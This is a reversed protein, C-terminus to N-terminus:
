FREGQNGQVKANLDDVAKNTTHVRVTGIDEMEDTSHMGQLIDPVHLRGFFAAARYQIMLEPMTQWKSTEKGYKDKKSWWGEAKAMAISVRPGFVVNGAHDHTWAVCGYNDGDGDIKFRLPGAFRGCGNISAIVFTSGWSPKGHIINMNQMVMLPSVGVRNAMELAVLCNAVNGQYAQPVVTSAALAQAMQTAAGFGETTKFVSVRNQNQAVAQVGQNQQPQHQQNEQM